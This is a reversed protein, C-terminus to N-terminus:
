AFLTILPLPEPVTDPATSIPVFRQSPFMVQGHAPNPYMARSAILKGEFQIKLGLWEYIRRPQERPAVLM